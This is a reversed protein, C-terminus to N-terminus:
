RGIREEGGRGVAFHNTINVKKGNQKKLCYPELYTLEVPSIRPHLEPSDYILVSALIVWACGLAGSFFFDM